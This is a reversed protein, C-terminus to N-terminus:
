ARMDAVSSTCIRQPYRNKSIIGESLRPKTQLELAHTTTALPRLFDPVTM